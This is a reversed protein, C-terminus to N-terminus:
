PQSSSWFSRNQSEFGDCFIGQDFVVGRRLPTNVAFIVKLDASGNAPLILDWQFAANVDGCM